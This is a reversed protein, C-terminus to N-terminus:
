YSEMEHIYQFDVCGTSHGMYAIETATGCGCHKSPNHITNQYINYIKQQAALESPSLDKQFDIIYIVDPNYWPCQEHHIKGKPCLCKIPEGYDDNLLMRHDYPYTRFYKFYYTKGTPSTCYLLPNYYIGRSKRKPTGLLIRCEDGKTKDELDMPSEDPKSDNKKKEGKQDAKQTKPNTKIDRSHLSPECPSKSMQLKSMTKYGDSFDTSSFDAEEPTTESAAGIIEDPIDQNVQTREDSTPTPITEEAEASFFDKDDSVEDM